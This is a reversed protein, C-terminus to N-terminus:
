WDHGYFLAWQRLASPMSLWPTTQHNAGVIDQRLWHLGPLAHSELQTIMDEYGLRMKENEETGLSLYVFHQLSDQQNLFSAAHAVIAHEERWFAPSFCLYSDFLEPQELLAQFTMLAGRSHGALLRHDNIRFNTELKPLAEESLFRLFNTGGGLEKTALNQRLYDPSLDRNRDTNPIGAIIIEPMVGAAALIDAVQKIKHDLSSGDFAVLLPYHQLAEEQYSAPLHLLIEREEGLIQSEVQIVEDATLSNRQAQIEFLALIVLATILASTFAILLKKKM